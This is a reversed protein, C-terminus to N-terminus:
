CPVRPKYFNLVLDHNWSDCSDPYSRKYNNTVQNYSGAREKNFRAWDVKFCQSSTPGKAITNGPYGKIHDGLLLYSESGGEIPAAGSLEAYTFRSADEFLEKLPKFAYMYTTNKYNEIVIFTFILGLFFICIQVFDM